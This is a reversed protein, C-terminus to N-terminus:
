PVMPRLFVETLEASDPLTLAHVVSEAVAEPQMYREPQYPEGELRRVQEQMRTATRGPFVSIVRVGRPNVEDRLADALSRLAAKSAGYPGTEGTGRLGATSNVFVVQGRRELLTPLLHRTLAYPARVNVRYMRDLESEPSEQIRGLHFGGASHVLVDVGGLEEVARAVAAELEGDDTLDAGHSVMEGQSSIGRCAEAVEALRQADRGTLFLRCGRDALLRAVAGGIGGSAGTVFAVRDTLDRRTSTM